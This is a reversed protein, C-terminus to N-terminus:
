ESFQFTLTSVPYTYGNNTLAITTATSGSLKLGKHATTGGAKLTGTPDSILYKNNSNFEFNGSADKVWFETANIRIREM